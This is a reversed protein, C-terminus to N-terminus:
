SHLQPAWHQTLTYTTSSVAPLASFTALKEGHVSYLVVTGDEAVVVLQEKASWAMGVVPPGEWTVSALPGGAATFLRIKPRGGDM